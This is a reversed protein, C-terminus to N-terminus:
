GSFSDSSFQEGTESHFSLTCLVSILTLSFGLVAVGSVWLSLPLSVAQDLPLSWSFSHIRLLSNGVAEPFPVCALMFYFSLPSVM